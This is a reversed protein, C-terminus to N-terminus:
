SAAWVGRPLWRLSPGRREDLASLTGLADWREGDRAGRHESRRRRRKRADGRSEKSGEHEKEECRTNSRHSGRLQVSLAVNRQPSRVALREGGGEVLALIPAM